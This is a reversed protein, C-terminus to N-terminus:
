MCHRLLEVHRKNEMTKMQERMKAPISWDRESGPHIPPPGLDLEELTPVYPSISSKGLRLLNRKHLESNCSAALLPDIAPQATFSPAPAAPAPLAPKQPHSVGLSTPSSSSLTNFVSPPTRAGAEMKVSNCSANDIPMSASPPLSDAMLPGQLVQHLQPPLPLTLSLDSLPSITSSGTDPTINFAPPM